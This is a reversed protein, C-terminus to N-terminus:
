PLAENRELQGNRAMRLGIWDLFVTGKKGINPGPKPKNAALVFSGFHPIPSITHSRLYDIVNRENATSRESRRFNGLNVIYMRRQHLAADAPASGIGPEKTIHHLPGTIPPSEAPPNKLEVGAFGHTGLSSRWFVKLWGNARHRRNFPLRTIIPRFLESVRISRM